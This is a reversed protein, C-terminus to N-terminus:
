SVLLGIQRSLHIQLVCASAGTGGLLQAVLCISMGMTFLILLPPEPATVLSVTLVGTGSDGRFDNEYQYSYTGPQTFSAVDAVYASGDISQGSGVEFDSLSFGAGQPWFEVTLCAQCPGSPIDQSSTLQPATFSWSFQDDGEDQFSYLLESVPSITLVGTGGNDGYIYQYIGPQSVNTAGPAYIGTAGLSQGASSQLGTWNFSTGAQQFQVTGSSWCDSSGTCQNDAISQSATLGNSTFAWFANNAMYAQSNQFSYLLQDAFAAQCSLAVLAIALSSLRLLAESRLRFSRRWWPLCAVLCISLGLALAVLSRPEPVSTAPAPSTQIVTFDDLGVFSGTLELPTLSSTALLDSYSFENWVLPTCNAVHCGGPDSVSQVLDGNWYISMQGGGFNAAWFNLSYTAGPNTVLGQEVESFLQVFSNGSHANGVGLSSIPNGFYWDTYGEEFGPNQVINVAGAFVKPTCFSLTLACVILAFRRAKKLLCVAPLALLLLAATGPEPTTTSPTYTYTISADGFVENTPVEGLIGISGGAAGLPPNPSFSVTGSVGPVGAAATLNLNGPGEFAGFDTNPVAGGSNAQSSTFTPDLSFDQATAEFVSGSAPGETLTNTLQTGDSATLSISQNVTVNSYNVTQAAISTEGEIAPGTFYTVNSFGLQVGTLQGLASNFQPLSVAQSYPAYMPVQNNDLGFAASYSVTDARM